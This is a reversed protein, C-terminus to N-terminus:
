NIIRLERNPIWSPFAHYPSLVLQCYDCFIGVTDYVLAANYNTPTRHLLASRRRNRADVGIRTDASNSSPDWRTV